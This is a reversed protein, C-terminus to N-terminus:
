DVCTHVLNFFAGVLQLYAYRRCVARFHVIAFVVRHEHRTRNDHVARWVRKMKTGHAEARHYADQKGANQAGTIATRAYRITSKHNIEGMTQAIRKAMNPISEGQMIAQLTVSQLKGEQWRIDKNDAILKDFAQRKEDSLDVAKGAKYADFDAFDKKLSASPPPLLEPEDRLIRAVTDKDYLTYSTNVRGLKEIEFTTFNHNIAYAEALNGNVIGKAIVNANHLDNALVEKMELWREGVMLQGIQWKQYEQLSVKGEAVRKQWIEDKIKYRRFYDALKAEVDEAAKKYEQALRKEITSLLAETEDNGIDRM